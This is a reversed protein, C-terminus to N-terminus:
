STKKVNNVFFVNCTKLLNKHAIQSGKLLEFNELTVQSEEVSKM